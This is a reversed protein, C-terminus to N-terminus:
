VRLQVEEEEDDSTYADAFEEGFITDPIYLEGRQLLQSIHERIPRPRLSLNWVEIGDLTQQQTGALNNVIQTMTGPNGLTFVQQAMETRRCFDWLTQTWEPLIPFYFRDKLYEHIRAMRDQHRPLVIVTENELSHHLAIAPYYLLQYCMDGLKLIHQRYAVRPILRAGYCSRRVVEVSTYSYSGNHRYEIDNKPLWLNVQANSILAARISEAKQKTGFICSLFYLTANQGNKSVSWATETLYGTVESTEITFRTGDPDITFHTRPEGAM